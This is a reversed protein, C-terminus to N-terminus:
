VAAGNRAVAKRFVLFVRNTTASPTEALELTPSERLRSVTYRIPRSHGEVVARFRAAALRYDGHFYLTAQGLGAALRRSEELDPLGRRLHEDLFTHASGRQNQLWAALEREAELHGSSGLPWCAVVTRAAVRALEALHRPRDGPALHEVVDVSTAAEVSGDALPLTQGGFVVDAPPRVNAVLVRSEPLISALLRPAGGVDLVSAPRELLQALVLHREWTDIPALLRARLRATM